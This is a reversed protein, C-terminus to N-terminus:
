QFNEITHISSVHIVHENNVKNPISETCQPLSLDLDFTEKIVTNITATLKKVNNWYSTSLNTFRYAHNEQVQTIQENWLDLQM